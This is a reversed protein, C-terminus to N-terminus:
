EKPKLARIEAPLRLPRGRENMAVVLVKASFLPTGARLVRQLLVLKSATVEVVDTLVSLEEDFYAPALYDAEIRRVVFVVGDERKMRLQDIGLGRVFASRGREIFKLYNAHYVIGAMDTDEYHVHIPFTQTM